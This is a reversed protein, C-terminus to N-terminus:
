LPLKEMFMYLGHVRVDQFGLKRYLQYAPNFTEVHLTLPLDAEQAQQILVEMLHTGFGQNRHEPLLTIEMLRHEKPTRHLYMRGFDVGRSQLILFDAGAYHQQYHTHQANFQQVLFAHKQEVPWPLASVDDRTSCYLEFLFQLDGASIARFVVPCGQFQVDPIHLTQIQNM